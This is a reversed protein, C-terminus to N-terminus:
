KLKRVVVADKLIVEGADQGRRVLRGKVLYISGEYRTGLHWRNFRYNADLASTGCLAKGTPEGDRWQRSCPLKDGPNYDRTDWRLYYGRKPMQGAIELADRVSTYSM